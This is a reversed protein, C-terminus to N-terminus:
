ESLLRPRPVEFNVPDLFRLPKAPQARLIKSGTFKSTWPGRREFYFNPPRKAIKRIKQTKGIEAAKRQIEGCIKKAEGLVSAQSHTRFPIAAITKWTQPARGVLSRWFRITALRKTNQAHNGRWQSSPGNTGFNYNQRKRTPPNIGDTEFGLCCSRSWGGFTNQIITQVKERVRVAANQSPPPTHTGYMKQAQRCRKILLSGTNVAMSRAHEQREKEVHCFGNSCM